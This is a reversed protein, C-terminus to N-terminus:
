HAIGAASAEDVLRGKAFRDLGFAAVLPAPRDEALTQALAAGGAPIAKFGGTGFGCNLYLNAVPTKGIIPSSDPTVDVVGAWQRMMRLRSFIPFTDVLGAVADEIQPLSSKQAYSPYLDLGQGIVLEGKESQSLYVGSDPSMITRHLVPKIPESVFAQLAYSVIPLRLGAFGAVVSSQGAVAMAVQGCAIEGRSTLVADIRDDTM